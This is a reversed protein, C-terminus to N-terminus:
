QHDACFESRGRPTNPCKSDGACRRHGVLADNLRDALQAAKSAAGPGDFSEIEVCEEIPNSKQSWIVVVYRGLSRGLVRFRDRVPKLYQVTAAMREEKTTTHVFDKMTKTKAIKKM